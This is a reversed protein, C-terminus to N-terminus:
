VASNGNLFQELQPRSSIKPIKIDKVQAPPPAKPTPQAHIAVGLATLWVGLAVRCDLV